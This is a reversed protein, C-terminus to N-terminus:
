SPYSSVVTPAFVLVAHRVYRWALGAATIGLTLQVWGLIFFFFLAKNYARYCDAHYQENSHAHFEVVPAGCWRCVWVAEFNALHVKKGVQIRPDDANRACRICRSALPYGPDRPTSLLLRSRDEDHMLCSKCHGLLQTQLQMPGLLTRIQRPTALARIQKCTRRLRVIDAFDLHRIIMLQIEPPLTLLHLPAKPSKAEELVHGVPELKEPQLPKTVVNGGDKRLRWDRHSTLSSLSNRVTDPSIGMLGHLLSEGGNSTRDTEADARTATTIVPNSNGPFASTVQAPDM